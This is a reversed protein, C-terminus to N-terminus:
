FDKFDDKILAGQEGVGNIATPLGSVKGPSGTAGTPLLSVSNKPEGATIETDLTPKMSKQVGGVLSTLDSVVQKLEAAQRNMEESASASEEANAANQQIVSDMETIAQNVQEIGQSQEKSAAAIESVLEGAKASSDKVQTFTQSAQNVLSTGDQVRKVTEQILDSTDRAAEAARLALNRVEEAVVAFGAGAEGARAAEVAANLALLNTQFAIEDITKVIKSTQEGAKSIKDMSSTLQVMSDDADEVVQSADMMLQDAERANDANNRTMSSMEELSSSTEEMSAAQESSGEALQQSAYALQNSAGSVQLSSETLGGIIRNIPRTISRTIGISLGIGILLGAGLLAYLLTDTRSRIDAIEDGIADSVDGLRDMLEGGSKTLETILVADDQSLRFLDTVEKRYASNVRSLTDVHSTFDKGDAEGKVIDALNKLDELGKSLTQASKEVEEKLSAKHYLLFDLERIQTERFGIWFRNTAALFEVLNASLVQGMIAAMNQESEIPQIINAGIHTELEAIKKRARAALEERRANNQVVQSFIQQFRTLKELVEAIKEHSDSITGAAGQQFTKLGQTLAEIQAAFKAADENQLFLRFDRAHINANMVQNIHASIKKDLLNARANQELAFKGIGVGVVFLVLLGLFGGAIRYRLSLSSWSVM